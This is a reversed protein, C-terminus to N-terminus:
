SFVALAFFSVCLFFSHIMEACYLRSCVVILRSTTMMMKRSLTMMMMTRMRM